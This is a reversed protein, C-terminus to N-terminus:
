GCGFSSRSQNRTRPSATSNRPIPRALRMASAPASQTSLSSTPSMSCAKPITDVIPYPPAGDDRADSPIAVRKPGFAGMHLWVSGSGPGGNFLFTVSRNPDKGDKVYSVSFISARPTGDDAKLYTESATATYSISQGGFRGSHKTVSRKPPAVAEAKSPEAAPKDKEQAWVPAAIILAAAGAGLLMKGLSKRM